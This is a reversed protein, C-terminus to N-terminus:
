LDPSLLSSAKLSPVPIKEEMSSGLVTTELKLIEAGSAQSLLIQGGM